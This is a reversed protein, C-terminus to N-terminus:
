LPSRVISVLCHHIFDCSPSTPLSLDIDPFMGVTMLVMEGPSDFCLINQPKIDGHRGMYKNSKEELTADHKHIKQLGRALGYCQTLVWNLSEPCTPNNPVTKWFELMDYKALPFIMFYHDDIQYSMLLRILHPHGRHSGSFRELAERENSYETAMGINFEKLSFYPGTLDFAKNEECFYHDEHLCVKSVSGHAGSGIKCRSLFPLQIKSNLSYHKLKRANLHFFPAIMKYQKDRFNSVDSKNWGFKNLQKDLPLSDDFLGHQLFSEILKRRKMQCLVALIRIRSQKYSNGCIKECLDQHNKEPFTKAIVKITRELSFLFELSSLPLFEYPTRENENVNGDSPCLHDFIVNDDDNDQDEQICPKVLDTANVLWRGSKIVKERLSFGLDMIPHVEMAHAGM